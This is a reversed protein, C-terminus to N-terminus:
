VINKNSTKIKNYQEGIINNYENKQKVMGKILIPSIFFPLPTSKNIQRSIIWESKTKLDLRQLSTKSGLSLYILIPQPSLFINKSVFTQALKLAKSTIFAKIPILLVTKLISNKSATGSPQTLISISSQWNSTILIWTLWDKLPLGM